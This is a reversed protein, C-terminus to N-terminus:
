KIRRQSLKKWALEKIYRLGSMSWRNTIARNVKVWNTTESSLIAMSYTLAIDKRKCEKSNIEMLLTDTCCILEISM